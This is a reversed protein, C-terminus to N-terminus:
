FKCSTKLNAFKKATKKDELMDPLDEAGVLFVDPFEQNEKLTSLYTEKPVAKVEITYASEKSYEHGLEEYLAENTLDDHYFIIKKEKSLLGCGTFLFLTISLCVIIGLKKRYM